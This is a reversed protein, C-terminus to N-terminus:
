ENQREVDVTIDDNSFRAQSNFTQQAVVTNNGTTQAGPLIVDITFIGSGPSTEGNATFNTDGVSTGGLLIANVLGPYLEAGTITFKQGQPVKTPSVGTITPEGVDLIGEFPYPVACAFEAVFDAPDGMSLQSTFGLRGTSGQGGDAYDDWAVTWFWSTQPNYDSGATNQRHFAWAPLPNVSNNLIITPPITFGVSQGHSVSGGVTGYPGQSANFGVSADITETTSNTFSSQFATVTAPQSQSLGEAFDIIGTAGFRTVQYGYDPDGSSGQTYQLMNQLYYIDESNLFSRAGTVYVDQTMIRGLSAPDNKDMFSCHVATALDVINNDSDSVESTAEPPTPEPASRTFRERLWRRVSRESARDLEDLGVLCYSSSLPPQRVVSEQLGYLDITFSGTSPSCNAGTRAGFFRAFRDAEEQTADVIAVTQGGDRAFHLLTTFTPDDLDAGAVVVPAALLRAPFDEDIPVVDYDERLLDLAMSEAAPSAYITGVQGCAAEFAADIRDCSDEHRHCLREVRREFTQCFRSDTIDSGYAAGALMSSGVLAGTIAAIRSM